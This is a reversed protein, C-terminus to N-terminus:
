NFIVQYTKNWINDIKNQIKGLFPTDDPQTSEIVANSFDIEENTYNEIAKQEALVAEPNREWKSCEVLQAQGNEDVDFVAGELCRRAFANEAIFIFLFTYFLFKKNILYFM